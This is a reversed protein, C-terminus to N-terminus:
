AMTKSCLYKVLHFSRTFILLVSAMSNVLRRVAEGGGSLKLVGDNRPTWMNSIQAQVEVRFEKEGFMKFETVCLAVLTKSM